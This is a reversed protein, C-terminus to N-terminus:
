VPVYYVRLYKQNLAAKGGDLSTHLLTGGCAGKYHISLM